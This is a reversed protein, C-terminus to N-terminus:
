EASKYFASLFESKRADGDQASAPRASRAKALVRTMIPNLERNAGAGESAIAPAFVASKVPNARDVEHSMASMANEQTEINLVAVVARRINDIRCSKQCALPQHADNM